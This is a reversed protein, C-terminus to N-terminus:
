NKQSKIHSIHTKVVFRTQNQGNGIFLLRKKDRKLLNQADANGALTAEMAEPIVPCGPTFWFDFNERRGYYSLEPCPSKMTHMPFGFRTKVVFLM